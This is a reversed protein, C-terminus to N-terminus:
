KFVLRIKMISNNEHHYKIGFNAEKIWGTKRVKCETKDRHDQINLVQNWLGAKSSEPKIQWLATSPKFYGTFKLFTFFTAEKM